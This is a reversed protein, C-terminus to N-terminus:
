MGPQVAQASTLRSFSEMDTCRLAFAAVDCLGFSQVLSPKTCAGMIKDVQHLHSVTSRSGAVELLKDAEDLVLHQVSALDIKKRQVLRGLRLPTTLVVHVQVSIVAEFGVSGFEFFYIDQCGCTSALWQHKWLHM